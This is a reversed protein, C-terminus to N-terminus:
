DAPDRPEADHDGEFHPNNVTKDAWEQIAEDIEPGLDKLATKIRGDMDKGSGFKWTMAKTGSPPTLSALYLGANYSPTFITRGDELREKHRIISLEYSLSLTGHKDSEFMFTHTTNKRGKM